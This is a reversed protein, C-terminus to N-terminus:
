IKKIKGYRDIHYLIYKEPNYDFNDNCYDPLHKYAPGKLIGAIGDEAGYVCAVDFWISSLLKGDTTILNVKNNLYVVAFNAFKLSGNRYIISFGDTNDFWLEPSLIGKKFSCFNIKLCKAKAIDEIYSSSWWDLDYLNKIKGKAIIFIEYDYNINNVAICDVNLGVRDLKRGNTVDIVNFLGNYQKVIAYKGHGNQNGYNIDLFEERTVYSGDRKILVGGERIGNVNNRRYAYSYMDGEQFEDALVFWNDFLLYNNAVYNYKHGIRVRVPRQEDETYCKSYYDTDDFIESILEGKAMRRELIYNEPFSTYKSKYYDM